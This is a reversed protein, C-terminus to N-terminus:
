AYDSAVALFIAVHESRASAQVSPTLHVPPTLIRERGLGDRHRRGGPDSPSTLWPSNAGGTLVRMQSCHHDNHRTQCDSAGSVEDIADSRRHSVDRQTSSRV